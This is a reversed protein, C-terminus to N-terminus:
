CIQTIDERHLSREQDRALDAPTPVLPRIRDVYRLVGGTKGPEHSFVTCQDHVPSGCREGRSRLTTLVLKATRLYSASILAAKTKKTSTEITLWAPKADNQLLYLDNATKSRFLSDVFGLLLRFTPDIGNVMPSNARVMDDPLSPHSMICALFLSSDSDKCTVLIIVKIGHSTYKLNRVLLDTVPGAVSGHESKIYSDSRAVASIHSQGSQELSMMM